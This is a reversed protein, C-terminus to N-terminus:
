PNNRTQEAAFGFTATTSAGDSVEAGDPLAVTLCLEESQGAALVRDGAQGGPLPSGAVDIGAVSGLSGSYVISGSAQWADATCSAVDAAITLRLLGALESENTTSTVAYRLELTGENTVTLASTVSDGPEMDAMGIVANAPAASIDVTGAKLAGASEQDGSTLVALSLVTLLGGAAIVTALTGLVRLVLQAPRGDTATGDHRSNEM